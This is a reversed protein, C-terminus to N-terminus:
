KGGAGGPTKENGDGNLLAEIARAPVLVKRGLRFAPLTGNQIFKRVSNIHLGLLKSVEIPTYALKNDLM